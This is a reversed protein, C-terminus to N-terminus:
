YYITRIMAHIDSQLEVPRVLGRVRGVVSLRVRPLHLLNWCEVVQLGVVGLELVMEVVLLVSFLEGVMGGMNEWSHSQNRHNQIEMQSYSERCGKGGTYRKHHSMKGKKPLWGVFFCFLLLSM